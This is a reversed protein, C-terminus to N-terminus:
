SGPMEGSEGRNDGVNLNHSYSNIKQQSFKGIEFSTILIAILIIIKYISESLNLILYLEVFLAALGLLLKVNIKEM